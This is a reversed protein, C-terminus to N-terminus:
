EALEKHESNSGRFIDLQGLEMKTKFSLLITDVM